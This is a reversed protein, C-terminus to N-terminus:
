LFAGAESTLVRRLRNLWCVDGYRVLQADILDGSRLLPLARHPIVVPLDDVGNLPRGVLRGAPMDISVVEFFGDHSLEPRRLLLPGPATRPLHKRLAAQASFSRMVHGELDERLEDVDTALPTGRRSAWRDIQILGDFTARIAALSKAPVDVRIWCTVFRELEQDGLEMLTRASTQGQAFDRLLAAVEGAAKPASEIFAEIDSQLAAELIPANPTDQPPTPNWLPTLLLGLETEFFSSPVSPPQSLVRLREMGFRRKTPHQVTHSRPRGGFLSLTGAPELEAEDEPQGEPSLWGMPLALAELWNQVAEHRDQPSAPRPDRAYAYGVLRQHSRAVAAFAEAVTEVEHLTFTRGLEMTGLFHQLLARLLRLASASGGMASAESPGTMHPAIAVLTEGQHSADADPGFIKASAPSVGSFVEGEVLNRILRASTKEVRRPPSASATPSVADSPGERTLLGAAMALNLRAEYAPGDSTEMLSQLTEAEIPADPAQHLAAALADLWRGGASPFARVNDPFSTPQQLAGLRSTARHVQRQLRLVLLTELIEIPIRLDHETRWLLGREVLAELRTKHAKEVSGERPLVGGSAVVEWLTQAARADLEGIVAMLTDPACLRARIAEGLQPDPPTVESTVFVNLFLARLAEVDLRRLLLWLRCATAPLCEIAASAVPEILTVTMPELDSLEVLCMGALEEIAAQRLAEAPVTENTAELLALLEDRGQASLAAIRRQIQLPTMLFQALPGPRASPAEWVRALAKLDREPLHTLDITMM